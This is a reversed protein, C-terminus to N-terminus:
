LWPEKNVSATRCRTARLIAVIDDASREAVDSIVMYDYERWSLLEERANRLRRQITEETETGRGRLRRELEPLSPPALFVTVVTGALDPEGRLLERAQRMGQVDIDLLVDRGVRISPLLESRLTGYWNGHVDAHELFDGASLHAAFAERTLFHYHVGDVEGPRPSRTTCSVSFRLAPYLEFVRKCVTSKGVGSPGSFIIAAGLQGMDSM